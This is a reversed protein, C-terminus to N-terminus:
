RARGRTRNAAPDAEIIVRCPREALVTELTKGFLSSGGRRVLPMVIATARMERAQDVIVRGAQGARVRRFNGTVRRGGQIRAQENISRAAMDLEPREDELSSAAPVTVTVLVHIGRRRRAALKAATGVVDPRYRTDEFAVLISDYEAESEVGGDTGPVRQQGQLRRQAM